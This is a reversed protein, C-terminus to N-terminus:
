GIWGLARYALLCATGVALLLLTSPLGLRLYDRFGIHAHGAAGEVVIINAVSGILTLNGALTSALALLM